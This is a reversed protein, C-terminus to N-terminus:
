SENWGWTESTYTLTPVIVTNRLDRKVEMRVSRGKMITGFVRGDKEKCHGKEQRERQVVMSVCLQDWTSLNTLRRWKKVLTIKSKEECEIRVRSPCVFDVVESRSRSM